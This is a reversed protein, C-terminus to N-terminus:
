HPVRVKEETIEFKRHPWLAAAIVHMAEVPDDCAFHTRSALREAGDVLETGEVVIDVVDVRIHVGDVACRTVAVLMGSSM